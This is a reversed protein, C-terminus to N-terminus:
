AIIRIRVLLDQHDKYPKFDHCVFPNEIMCAWCFFREVHLCFYALEDNNILNGCKPCIPPSDCDAFVTQSFTGEPTVNATREDRLFRFKM